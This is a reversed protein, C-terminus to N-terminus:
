HLLIDFRSVFDSFWFGPSVVLNNYLQDIWMCHESWFCRVYPAWIRRVARKKKSWNKTVDFWLWVPCHFVSLLWNKSMELTVIYCNRSMLAFLKLILGRLACHNCCTGGTNVSFFGTIQGCWTNVHKTCNEYYASIIERFLMLQSTKINFVTNEIHYTSFKIVNNKFIHFVIFSSNLFKMKSCTCHVCHLLLSQTVPFMRQVSVRGHGTCVFQFTGAVVLILLCEYRILSVFLSM